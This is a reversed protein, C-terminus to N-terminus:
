VDIREKSLIGLINKRLLLRARHLNTKVTGIPLAMLESIEAYTREQLYFLTVAVMYAEPLEELQSEILRFLDRDDISLVDVNEDATDQVLLDDLPLTSDVPHVPQRVKSVCLNYLIRYFWTGFTSDRRFENLGRFARVFADQLIEEAEERNKLMRLALALGRNKYRDVLIAYKRTDGRQIEELIIREDDQL